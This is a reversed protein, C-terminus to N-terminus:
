SEVYGKETPEVYGLREAARARTCEDWPCGKARAWQLVELHGGIAARACTEEDWPCDNERAWQLVELHGGWAACRCIYMKDLHGRQLLNRLATLCGLKAARIPARMNEISADVADRMSHSVARLRAYDAIELLDDRGLIENKIDQPLDAFTTAERTEPALVRELIARMRKRM